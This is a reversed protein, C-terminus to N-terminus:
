DALELGRLHTYSVNVRSRVPSCITPFNIAAIQISDCNTTSKLTLKFVDCDRRKFKNDGFTNLNLTERSTPKLNLRGQVSNTIYTRQSGTDFLVRM